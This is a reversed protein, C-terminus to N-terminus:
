NPLWRDLEQDILAGFDAEVIAPSDDIASEFESRLGTLEDVARKGFLRVLGIQIDSAFVVALLFSDGVQSLYINNSDGEHLLVRFKSPEGIRRAIENTAALDGAVLAALAVMDTSGIRGRVQILQGSVDALFAYNARTKIQLEDLVKTIREIQQANLILSPLM